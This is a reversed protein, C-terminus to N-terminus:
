AALPMEAASRRGSTDWDPSAAPMSTSMRVEPECIEGSEAMAMFARVVRPDFHTGDLRCIEAIAQDLPWAPKYPRVHVLADFVDALAVIRGSLPIEEGVMGAYGQGDWREHHTLAIEAALQLWPSVSGSLIRAGIVTHTRMVAYEEPTLFGPKLLIADPIAIKGIDHLTAAEDIIHIMPSSPDVHRVIAQAMAGVRKTHLGTEDDRYEAALALRQLMERQSAELARTRDRVGAELLRHQLRVHLLNKLRIVVETEDFPKTLFDKAGYSLAKQRTSLTPDATMVLIPLYSDQSQTALVRAMVEFGDMHPMMLDLLLADPRIEEYLSLVQRPDTTSSVCAFGAQKLIIELLRVNAIEDDVILVPANYV